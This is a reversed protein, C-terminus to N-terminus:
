ENSYISFSACMPCVSGDRNGNYYDFLDGKEVKEVKWSHGCDECCFVEYEAEMEEEIDEEEDEPDSDFDADSDDLIENEKVYDDFGYKGM